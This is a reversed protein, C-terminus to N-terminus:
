DDSDSRLILELLANELAELREKDTPKNQEREYEEILRQRKEEDFVLEGDVYKWCASDTKFFEHNEDLEVEIENDVHSSTSGWGDVYGNKDLILYIKM